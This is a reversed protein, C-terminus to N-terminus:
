HRAEPYGLRKKEEETDKLLQNAEHIEKARKAEVDVKRRISFKVAVVTRVRRVKEYEVCIDSHKNIERLCPDIIKQRLKGFGDYSGVVGLRARFDDLSVRWSGKGEWQKLNVYLKFSAHRRFHKTNGIRYSTFFDKLALFYEKVSENLKFVFRGEDRFYFLDTLWHSSAKVNGIRYQLPRAGLKTFAIHVIQYANQPTTNYFKRVEALTAEFTPNDAMRSDYHALMFQFLRNENLRLESLMEIFGNKMAVVSTDSITRKEVDM